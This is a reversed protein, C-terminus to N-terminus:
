LKWFIYPKYPRFCWLTTNQAHHRVFSSRCGPSGLALRSTSCHAFCVKAICGQFICKPFYMKSFVSKFICKSFNDKPFICKKLSQVIKQFTVYSSRRAGTSEFSFKVRACPQDDAGSVSTALLRFYHSTRIVAFQSKTFNVWFQETISELWIAFMFQCIQSWNTANVLVWTAKSM